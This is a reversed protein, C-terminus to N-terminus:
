QTTDVTETYPQRGQMKPAHESLIKASPISRSLRAAVVVVAPQHEGVVVFVVILIQAEVRGTHGVTGMREAREGVLSRGEDGIQGVPVVIQHRVLHATFPGGMALEVKPSTLRGAALFIM